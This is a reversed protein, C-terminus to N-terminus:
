TLFELQRRGKGTLEVTCRDGSAFPLRWAAAFNARSIVAILEVWFNNIVHLLAKQTWIQWKLQESFFPKFSTWWLCSPQHHTFPKLWCCCWFVNIAPQWLEGNDSYDGIMWVSEETRTSLGIAKFNLSFSIRWKDADGGLYWAQPLVCPDLWFSCAAYGWLLFDEPKQVEWTYNAHKGDLHIGTERCLELVCVDPQTFVKIQGLTRTFPTHGLHDWSRDPSCEKREGLSDQSLCWCGQTESSCCLFSVFPHFNRKLGRTRCHSMTTTYLFASM